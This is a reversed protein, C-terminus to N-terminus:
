AHGLPSARDNSATWSEGLPIALAALMAPLILSWLGFHIELVAGLALGVAFGIVSVSTMDARCRIRPLETQESHGRVLTALDVTLQTVNTTMVATSPAGPLALRVLGNQTAMAAVGLMGVFVAMGNNANPFPGFAIGFGLFCALLVAQLVLLVRRVIWIPKRVSTLTVIGLVVVFMPVSLLPAMEGFRGTIYHAALVVLNGTIHATFLGGLALFGIVDVAGATTSLLLPLLWHAQQSLAQKSRERRVMEYVDNQAL